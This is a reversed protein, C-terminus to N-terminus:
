HINLLADAHRYAPASIIGRAGVQVSHIPGDLKEEWFTLFKRLVPFKPALDMDQWIYEQLLGPHDPRHYIIQATTLRYGDLQAQLM